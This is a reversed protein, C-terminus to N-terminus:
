SQKRIGLEKAIHSMKVGEYGLENFQRVAARKINERTM